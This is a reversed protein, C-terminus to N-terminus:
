HGCTCDGRTVWLRPRVISELGCIDEVRELEMSQPRAAQLVFLVLDMRGLIRSFVADPVVWEPLSQFWAFVSHRVEPVRPLPSRPTEHSMDVWDLPLACQRKEANQPM